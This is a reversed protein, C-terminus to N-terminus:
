SLETLQTTYINGAPTPQSITERQHLLYKVLEDLKLHITVCKLEKDNINRPGEVKQGSHINVAPVSSEIKMCVTPIQAYDHSM